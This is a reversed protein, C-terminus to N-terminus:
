VLWVRPKQMQTKVSVLRQKSYAKGVGRDPRLCQRRIELIEIGEMVEKEREKSLEKEKVQEFDM